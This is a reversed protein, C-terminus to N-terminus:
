ADPLDGNQRPGRTQLFKAGNDGMVESADLFSEVPEPTAPPSHEIDFDLELGALRELSRVDAADFRAPDLFDTSMRTDFTIGIRDSYKINVLDLLEGTDCWERLPKIEPALAQQEEPLDGM